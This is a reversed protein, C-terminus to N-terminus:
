QRCLGDGRYPWNGAAAYAYNGQVAVKEYPGSGWRGAQTVSYSRPTFSANVTCDATVSDTTYTTGM